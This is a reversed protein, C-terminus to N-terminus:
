ELPCSGLSAFASPDIPCWGWARWVLWTAGEGGMHTVPLPNRDGHFMAMSHCGIGTLGFAGVPVVTSTNHPCGPCFVPRRTLPGSLLTAVRQLRQDILAIRSAGSPLPERSESMVDRLRSALAKAVTLADLPTDAPLLAAGDPVFKGSLKPRQTRNFLLAAAQRELHPRKEEVFLIEAADRAAEFLGEPELPFIMAVKYVGIGLRRACAEDIGLLGLASVVDGYCKGATVILFRPHEAGFSLRDLRNARAFAGARPLKYRVLRSEQEILALFEKRIHVGGPPDPLSPREFQRLEADLTVTSTLDATENVIKLGVLLGSYRSLEIGALGYSVIEAVSAPYIIPIDNAALALDSQHATSSSKGAHDDGFVLLVGGYPETGQLNAHKFPDGSRDVGPGKGYWLSFVGQVKRGPLFGVQQTGWVATAALDENVGPSFLIDHQELLRRARQLETDYSGLPSGRYGSIFGATNLGRARDLRRQVLPLRVLAQRGSMVVRGRELVYKDDFNMTM